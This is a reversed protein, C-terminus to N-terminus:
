ILIKAMKNKLINSGEDFARQHSVSDHTTQDQSLTGRDTAGLQNGDNGIGNTSVDKQSGSTSNPDQNVASLSM